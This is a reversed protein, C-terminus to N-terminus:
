SAAQVLARAREAFYDGLRRAGRPEVIVDRRGLAAYFATLHAMRPHLPRLLWAGLAAAALPVRRVRARGGTAAVALETMQRRTLVDPGGAEVVGRGEGEVLAVCVEALDADHIPNSRAAGDGLLPVAGRAAADVLFGLASFFGSPRVVAWDLGSAALADGVAEHARVYDLRRMSADHATSVYVFRPVRAARAAALLHLNAPTDLKGFRRWGRWGPMVSAGVCSFVADTGDCAGALSAPRLADGVRVEAGAPARAAQRVLARVAHGRALLLSTVQRGLAGSAGAVLVNM